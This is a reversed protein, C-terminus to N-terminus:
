TVHLTATLPQQIVQQVAWDRESVPSMLSSTCESGSEVPKASEVNHSVAFTAALVVGQLYVDAYQVASGSQQDAHLRCAKNRAM